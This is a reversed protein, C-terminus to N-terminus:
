ERNFLGARCLLDKLQTMRFHFNDNEPFNQGPKKLEPYVLLVLDHGPRINHRLHRYSERGLRKARNREM